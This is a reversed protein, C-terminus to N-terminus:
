RIWGQVGGECEVRIWNGRRHVVRVELGAPLLPVESHVPYDVGNGVRLPVAERVVFGAPERRNLSAMGLLIAAVLCGGGLLLPWRSSRRWGVFGLFCAVAFLAHGGGRIWIVDWREGQKAPPLKSGAPLRVERRALALNERLNPFEPDLEAARRYADIADPLRGALYAANGLNFLDRASPNPTKALLDAARAFDPQHPRGEALNAVGQVFHDRPEDARASAVGSMAAALALFRLM